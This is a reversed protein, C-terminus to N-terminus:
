QQCEVMGYISSGTGSNVKSAQSWSGTCRCGSVGLRALVYLYCMFGQMHLGLTM